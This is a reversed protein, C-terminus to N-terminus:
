EMNITKLWDYVAQAIYRKGVINPHIGDGDYWDSHNQTLSYLDIITLGYDEALENIVMNVDDVYDPQIDFQAIGDNDNTTDFAQIITGIAMHADPYLSQYIEILVSYNAYFTQQDVWTTTNTDNTGFLLMIAAVDKYNLSKGYADTDSYPTLSDKTVTTGSVGLNEIVVADGMLEQLLAPYNEDPLGETISDGICLVMPKNVEISPEIITPMTTEVSNISSEVVTEVPKVSGEIVSVSKCGALLVSLGAIWGIAKM